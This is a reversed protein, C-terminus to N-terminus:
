RTAARIGNWTRVRLAYVDDPCLSSWHLRDTHDAPITVAPSRLISDDLFASAGDIANMYGIENTIAAAVDPRMLFNMFARAGDANEATHPIVVNDSWLAAGEIPRLFGISPQLLWASHATGSWVVAIDFDGGALGDAIAAADFIAPPTQTGAITDQITQWDAPDNECPDLGLFYAASATIDGADNTLAVPTMGSERTFALSWSEGVPNPISESNYAIGTTGWLYPISHLREPDFPPADHPPIVRRFNPLGTADFAMVLSEEILRPMVSDSPMAIDFRRDGRRLSGVLEDNSVFVDLVIEIGHEAEFQAMVPEPLYGPWSYVFLRGPEAIAPGCGLLLAAVLITPRTVAIGM